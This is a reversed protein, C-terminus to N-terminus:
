RALVLALAPILAGFIILIVYDLRTFSGFEEEDMDELTDIRRELDHVLNDDNKSQSMTFVTANGSFGVNDTLTSLNSVPM